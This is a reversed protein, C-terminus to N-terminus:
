NEPVPPYSLPFLVARVLGPDCTRARSRGGCDKAVNREVLESTPADDTGTQHRDHESFYKWDAARDSCAHAGPGPSRIAPGHGPDELWCGAPRYIPGRRGDPRWYREFNHFLKGEPSSFVYTSLM